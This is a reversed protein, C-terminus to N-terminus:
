NQKSNRGVLDGLDSLTVGVKSRPLRGPKRSSRAYASKIPLKGLQSSHFRGGAGSDQECEHARTDTSSTQDITLALM